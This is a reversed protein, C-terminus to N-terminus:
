ISPVSSRSWRSAFVFVFLSNRLAMAFDISSFYAFRTRSSLVWTRLLANKSQSKASRTQRANRPKM